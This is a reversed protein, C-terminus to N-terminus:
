KAQAALGALYARIAGVPWRTSQPGLKIPRPLIGAKANRWVSNTSCGLLAAIEKADLLASDALADFNARSSPASVGRTKLLPTNTTHTPM